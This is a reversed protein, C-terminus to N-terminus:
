ETSTEVGGLIVDIEGLYFGWSNIQTFELIESVQILAM